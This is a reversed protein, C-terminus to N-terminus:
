LKSRLSVQPTSIIATNEKCVVNLEFDKKWKYIIHCLYETINNIKRM